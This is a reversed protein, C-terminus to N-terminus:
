PAPIVAERFHKNGHEASVGYAFVLQQGVVEGRNNQDETTSRLTSNANVRRRIAGTKFIEETYVVYQTAHGGADVDTIGAAVAAGAVIERVIPSLAEAATVTLTADADGSPIEYGAQWFEIPDGTPGWALQPGSGNKVLGIKKFAVPLTYEDDMLELATPLTTGFPAIAIAGTVAVGVLTIDNGASDAM